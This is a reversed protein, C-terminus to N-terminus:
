LKQATTLPIGAAVSLDQASAIAISEITPYGAEQLKTLINQSVGPLEDISRVSKKSLNEQVQDGVKIVM